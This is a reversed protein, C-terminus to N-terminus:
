DKLMKLNAKMARFNIIMLLFTNSSISEMHIQYINLLFIVEKV